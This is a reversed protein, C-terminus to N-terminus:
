EHSQILFTSNLSIGLENSRFNINILNMMTVNLIILFKIVKHPRQHVLSQAMIVYSKMSEKVSTVASQCLCLIAETAYTPLFVSCGFPIFHNFICGKIWKSYFEWEKTFPEGWSESELKHSAASPSHQTTM